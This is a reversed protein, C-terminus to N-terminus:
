WDCNRLVLTVIERFTDQNRLIRWSKELQTEIERFRGWKWFWTKSEFNPEEDTTSEKKTYIINIYM